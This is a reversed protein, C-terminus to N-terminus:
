TKHKIILAFNGEDSFIDHGERVIMHNSQPRSNSKEESDNRMGLIHKENEM